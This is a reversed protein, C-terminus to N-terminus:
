KQFRLCPAHIDEDFDDFEPGPDNETIMEASLDPVSGDRKGDFGPHDAEPGRINDGDTINDMFHFYESILM